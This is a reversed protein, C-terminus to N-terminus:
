VEVIAGDLELRKDLRALAFAAAEQFRENSLECGDVPYAVSDRYGGVCLVDSWVVVIIQRKGDGDRGIFARKVAEDAVDTLESFTITTKTKM